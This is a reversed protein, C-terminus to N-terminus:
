MQGVQMQAFPEVPKVQQLVLAMHQFLRHLQAIGVADVRHHKRAIQVIGAHGGGGRRRQQAPKQGLQGGAADHHHGDGAVVVAGPPQVVAGFQQGPLPYVDGGPKVAHGGPHHEVVPVPRHLERQQGKHAGGGHLAGQRLGVDRIVGGGDGRHQIRHRHERPPPHQHGMLQDGAASLCGRRAAALGPQGAFVGVQGHVGGQQFAVAIHRQAVDVAGLPGPRVGDPVGTRRQAIM